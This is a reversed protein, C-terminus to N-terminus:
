LVGETYWMYKVLTRSDGTSGEVRYGKVLYDTNPKLVYEWESQQQEGISVSATGLFLNASGVGGPLYFKNLLYGDNIVDPQTFVHCGPKGIKNRNYSIPYEEEGNGNVTPSEYLELMLGPKETVIRIERFYIPRSKVKFLRYRPQDGSIVVDAIFLFADGKHIKAVVYDTYAPCMFYPDYGRSIDLVRGGQIFAQTYARAPDKTRLAM